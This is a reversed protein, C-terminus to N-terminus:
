KKPRPKKGGVEPEAPPKKSESEGPPLRKEREKAMLGVEEKSVSERKGQAEIFSKLRERLDVDRVLCLDDETALAGGVGTLGMESLMEHTVPRGEVLVGIFNFGRIDQQNLIPQLTNAPLNVGVAHVLLFKVSNPYATKDIRIFGRTPNRSNLVLSRGVDANAGYKILLEAIEFKGELAARGLFTQRHDKHYGVADLGKSLLYEVIDARDGRLAIRLLDQPDLMKVKNKAVHEGLLKVMDLHGREIAKPLLSPVDVNFGEDSFYTVIEVQNSSVAYWIADVIYRENGPPWEGGEAAKAQEVVEKIGALDKKRALHILRELGM